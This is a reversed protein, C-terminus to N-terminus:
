PVLATASSTLSGSSVSNSAKVTLALRTGSDQAGLVYTQGVAGPIAACNAGASDCRNWQYAFESPAGAWRGPDATLTQSQQPPGVINPPALNRITFGFQLRQALKATALVPPASTLHTGPYAALVVLGIARDLRLVGLALEMEFRYRGIRKRGVITLRFASQGLRLAVPRGVVISLGKVKTGRVIDRAFARRGSSTSLTSRIDEFAGDATRADGFVYVDSEVFFLRKGALRAGSRFSRAYVAVVPPSASQFGESEVRAGGDFDAPALAMAQLDLGDPLPTAADAVVALCLSASAIALTTRVALRGIRSNSSYTARGM